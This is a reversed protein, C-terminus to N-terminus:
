PGQAKESAPWWFRSSKRGRPPPPRGSCRESGGACAPVPPTGRRTWRGSSGLPAPRSGPSGSLVPLCTAWAPELGSWGLSGGLAAAGAPVRWAPACPPKADARCRPPFAFLPSPGCGAGGGGVSRRIHVSRPPSAASLSMGKVSLVRKNGLPPNYMKWIHQKTIRMEM